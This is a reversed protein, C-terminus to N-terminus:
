EMKIATIFKQQDILAKTAATMHTPIKIRVWEKTVYKLYETIYTIDHLEFFEVEGFNMSISNVYKYIGTGVSSTPPINSNIGFIIMDPTVIELIEKQNITM